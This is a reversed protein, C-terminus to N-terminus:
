IRRSNSSGFKDRLSLRDNLTKHANPVTEAPLPKNRFIIETETWAFEPHTRPPAVPPRPGCEPSPGVSAIPQSHMTFRPKSPPAEAQCEDDDIVIIDEETEPEGFM